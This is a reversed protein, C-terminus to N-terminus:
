SCVGHYDADGPLSVRNVTHLKCQSIQAADLWPGTNCTNVGRAQCNTEHLPDHPACAMRTVVETATMCPDHGPAPVRQVHLPQGPQATNDPNNDTRTSTDLTDTRTEPQGPQITDPNDIADTQTERKWAKRHADCCTNAKPNDLAVNCKSYKCNSM